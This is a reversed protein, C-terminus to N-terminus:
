SNSWETFIIDYGNVREIGDCEVEIDYNQKDYIEVILEDFKKLMDLRVVYWHGDDDRRLTYKKNM